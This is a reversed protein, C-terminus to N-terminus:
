RQLLVCEGDTGIAFVCSEQTGSTCVFPSISGAAATDASNAAAQENALTTYSHLTHHPVNMGTIPHNPIFAGRAATQIQPDPRKALGYMFLLSREAAIQLLSRVVDTLRAMQQGFASGPVMRQLDDCRGEDGHAFTCCSCFHGAAMGLDLDDFFVVRCNRLVGFSLLNPLSSVFQQLQDVSAVSVVHLGSSVALLLSKPSGSDGRICIIDGHRIAEGRTAWKLVPHETHYSLSRLFWDGANGNLWPVQNMALPAEKFREHARLYDKRATASPLARVALRSRCETGQHASVLFLSSDSLHVLAGPAELERVPSGWRPKQAATDRKNSDNIQSEDLIKLLIPSGSLQFSRNAGNQMTATHAPLIKSSEEGKLIRSTATLGPVRLRFWAIFCTTCVVVPASATSTSQEEWNFRGIRAM